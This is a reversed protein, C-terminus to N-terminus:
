EEEGTEEPEEDGAGFTELDLDDNDDVEFVTEEVAEGPTRGRGLLERHVLPRASKPLSPDVYLEQLDLLKMTGLFLRSQALPTHENRVLALRVLSRSSWSQHGAILRITSATTDERCIIKFLHAEVLRPNSLCLSVVEMHPDQLLKQLVAGAATKALTKRYGLPMTPIREIVISEVKHRFVLPLHHNRTLEEIDFLRLYRVISLSVSLPTKPNGALALRIPYSDVWRRDRYIADLLEPPLNKRGAVSLADEERLHSNGLLARIVRPSPDHLLPLIGDGTASGAEAIRIDEARDM